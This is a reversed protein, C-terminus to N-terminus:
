SRSRLLRRGWWSTAVSQGCIVYGLAEDEAMTVDWGHRGGPGGALLLVDAPELMTDEGPLLVVQNDRELMLPVLPLNMTRGFPSAMLSGLRVEERALRRSLAPAGVPDVAVQWVDPSGVGCTTVLRDFLSAAWADDEERAPTLFDWLVPNAFRELVERAVVEAPVLLLNPELAEFLARNAPLEQRAVVFLDPNVRRAADVYSVNVTDKDAAAVLAVSGASMAAFPAGEAPLASPTSAHGPTSPTVVSVPVGAAILDARVEDAGPREGVVIWRGAVPPRLRPPPPAGTPSVLWEFLQALAPTHLTLRLRDGFADFPNVVHPGGFAEMRHAMGRSDARAIVPLHPHLLHAAQVMALNAEGDDTLALVGSCRPHALGALQLTALSRTNAALAPVDARLAALDLADIRDQSRDIVVFRVGRRDLEKAVRSGAEGYGALILFPQPMHQVQRAFRQTAVERRFGRDQILALLTGIAYAWGVVAVFISITVWMRQEPTLPYPIEGFGITTATYSMFYFADFISMPKTGGDPQQGPILTLGLVSISFVTVLVILPARMRRLILFITGSTDPAHLHREDHAESAPHPDLGGYRELRSPTRPHGLQPEPQHDVLRHWFLLLPNGM